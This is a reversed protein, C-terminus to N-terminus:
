NAAMALALTCAAALSFAPARILRRAAVGIEKGATELWISVVGDLARERYVLDNGFRFRARARAEEGSGSRSREEDEILALHAEIEQQLEDDLRSRRIANWLRRIPSM